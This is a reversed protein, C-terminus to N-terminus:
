SGAAIAATILADLGIPKAGRQDLLALVSDWWRDFAALDARDRVYPTHGPVLSPSHFSFNLVAVGEGMAIRVAELADRLPMQEPTLAVRALLGSRAMVGRARPIRGLAPYLSAGQGRLRGTYVTTLPLEILAGLRFAHNGIASFDPGGEQTYDYRARMSSDLRYGRAALLEITHPGIGYRGARYALPAKGFAATIAATLVDLKAAELAPPLNGPFSHFPTVVEDAPPNVWPHLQTGISSQGDAIARRLIDVAAPDSVIPHDIMFALPVGSATFRAHAAPIAAVATTARADRSLPARWNFEEETDVFVIFRTGFDAPWRVLADNGPAAPRYGM